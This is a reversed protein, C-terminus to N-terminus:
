EALKEDILASFDAYSMNPYKTGNIIFSPTGTINDKASNTEFVTMMAQAKEGDNLCVDLQDDSLGATRGLKQLGESISVPDGGGLWEKQNKYILDALGFYRLNGGCRAVMGAWLGYRDFYVERYIFNIKGTDIYNTKLQKFTNAHFNACHPCTFSAYEIVTVKADPNGLSMEEIASTDIASEPDAAPTAMETTGTETTAIETAAMEGGRQSSYLVYGSWLLAIVAAVLIITRKM